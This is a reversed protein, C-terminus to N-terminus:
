RHNVPLVGQPKGCEIKARVELGNIEQKLQQLSLRTFQFFDSQIMTIVADNSNFDMANCFAAQVLQDRDPVLRQGSVQIGRYPM